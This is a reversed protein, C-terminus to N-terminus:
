FDDFTPSELDVPSFTIKYNTNTQNRTLSVM